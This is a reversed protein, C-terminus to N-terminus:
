GQAVRIFLRRSAQVEGCTSIEVAVEAQDPIRDDADEHHTANRGREDVADLTVVFEINLCIGNL